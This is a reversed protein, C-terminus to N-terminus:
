VLARGHQGGMVDFGGAGPAALGGIRDHEIGLLAMAAADGHGPHATQFEEEIQRVGHHESAAVRDHKFVPADDFDDCRRLRQRFDAARIRRQRHADRPMEAIPVQRGFDRRPAQANSAVMHNLFHRLAEARLHQLDFRREIRLAPSIQLRGSRLRMPMIVMPMIVMAVIVMAVIVPVVVAMIVVVVFVM